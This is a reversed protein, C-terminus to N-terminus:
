QASYCQRALKVLLFTCPINMTIHYYILWICLYPKKLHYKLIYKIPKKIRLLLLLLLLFELSVFQKMFLRYCDFTRIFQGWFFLYLSFFM